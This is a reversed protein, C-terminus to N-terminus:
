RLANGGYTAVKGGISERLKDMDSQLRKRDREGAYQQIGRGVFELPSAAVSVRGADRMEPKALGRLAEAQAMQPSLGELDLQEGYTGLLAALVAPDLGTPNQPQQGAQPAQPAQPMIGM